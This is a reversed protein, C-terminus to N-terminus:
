IFLGRTPQSDDDDDDDDGVATLISGMLLTREPPAVSVDIDVELGTAGEAWNAVDVVGVCDDWNIDDCCDELLM